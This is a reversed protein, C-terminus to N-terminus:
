LIMFLSDDMCYNRDQNGMFYWEFSKGLYEAARKLEPRCHTQIWDLHARKFRVKMTVDLGVATIKMGSQFVYDAAVPDCAVNAEAVPSVNGRMSLTGGMMYMHKVLKVFQPYKKITRAINTLPGLTILVMEGQLREATELYFEEIGKDFPKRESKPLEVNGLGNEGHIISVRGAWKGTLPENAGIVVPIDPANVLDLIKMTNEAALWSEVNGYVCGIGQIEYAPRNLAYILALSDDVGTDMDFVVKM